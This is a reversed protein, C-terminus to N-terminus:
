SSLSILMLDNDLPHLNCVHGEYGSRFNFASSSGVCSGLQYRVHSSFLNDKIFIFIIIVIIIIIIKMLRIM